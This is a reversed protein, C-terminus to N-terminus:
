FVLIAMLLQVTTKGKSCVNNCNGKQTLICQLFWVSLNLKFKQNVKDFIQLLQKYLNNNYCLDQMDKQIDLVSITIFVM